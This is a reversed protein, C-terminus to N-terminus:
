KREESEPYPVFKTLELPSPWNGRWELVRTGLYISTHPQVRHGFEIREPRGTAPECEWGFRKWWRWFDYNDNRWTIVDIRHHVLAAYLFQFAGEVPPKDLLTSQADYSKLHDGPYILPEYDIALFPKSM